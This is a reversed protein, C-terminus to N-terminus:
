PILGGFPFPNRTIAVAVIYLFVTLAGWWAWVRVIRTRGRRLAAMGLYIYLFIAILKATLWGHTGPFQQIRVALVIASVLLVTDICHPIVKVWPRQLM